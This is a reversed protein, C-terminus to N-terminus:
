KGAVVFPFVCFSVQGYQVFSSRLNYGKVKRYNLKTNEMKGRMRCRKEKEGGLQARMWMNDIEVWFKKNFCYEQREILCEFM